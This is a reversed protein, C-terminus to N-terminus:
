VEFKTIKSEPIKNGLWENINEETVETIKFLKNVWEAVADKCQANPVNNIMMTDQGNFIIWYRIGGM